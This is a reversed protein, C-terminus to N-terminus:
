TNENANTPFSGKDHSIFTEILNIGRFMELYGKNKDYECVGSLIDEASLTFAFSLSPINEVIKKNVMRQAYVFICVVSTEIVFRENSPSCGIGVERSEKHNFFNKPINDQFWIYDFVSDALDELDIPGGGLNSTPLEFEFYELEQVDYAYYRRVLQELTM